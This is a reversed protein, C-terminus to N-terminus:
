VVLGQIGIRQGLVRPYEQLVGDLLVVLQESRAVVRGRVLELVVVLVERLPELVALDVQGDDDVHKQGAEVGSGEVGQEAVLRQFGAPEQLDIRAGVADEIGDLGVAVDDAESIKLVGGVIGELEETVLVSAADDQELGVLVVQRVVGRLDFLEESPKWETLGNDSLFRVLLEDLQETSDDPKLVDEGREVFERGVIHKGLTLLLVIATKVQFTSRIGCHAPRQCSLSSWSSTTKSISSM